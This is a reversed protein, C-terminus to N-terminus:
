LGTNVYLIGLCVFLQIIYNVHVLDLTTNSMRWIQCAGSGANYHRCISHRLARLMCSITPYKPCNNFFTMSKVPCVHFGQRGMLFVLACFQIISNYPQSSGHINRHIYLIKAPFINLILGYVAHVCVNRALGIYNAYMLNLTTLTTTHLIVVCACYLFYIISV